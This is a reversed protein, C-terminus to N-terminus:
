HDTFSPFGRLNQLYKTLASPFRPNTQKLLTIHQEYLFKVKQNSLKDAFREM